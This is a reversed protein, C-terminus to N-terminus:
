SAGETAGARPAPRAPTIALRRGEFLARDGPLWSLVETAAGALRLRIANLMDEETQKGGEASTPSVALGRFGHAYPLFYRARAAKCAAAVGEPGLTMSGRKRPRLYMQRLKAFPVTLCYHSLGPNWGEPFEFCCSLVVDIPGRQAASRELVDVMNGMPDRGSDVLIAVSFEPCTFRYCNGWNRLDGMPAGGRRPQEGYFPLADIIFDGVEVSSWWPLEHVEQGTLRASEAMVEPCLLSPRPVRPVVVPAQAAALMRLVSPLHWHDGHSHTVVVADAALPALEDPFRGGHTTWSHDYGQPDTVLTTRRSRLVLSAHERRYIGPEAVAPWRGHCGSRPEAFTAPWLHDLLVGGLIKKCASRFADLDDGFTGLRLVEAVGAVEAPQIRRFFPKRTRSDMYWIWPRERRYADFLLGPAAACGGAELADLDFWAPDLGKATILAQLKRRCPGPEFGLALFERLIESAPVPPPEPFLQFTADHLLVLTM